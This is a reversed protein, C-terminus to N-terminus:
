RSNVTKSYTSNNFNNTKNLKNIIYELKLFEKSAENNSEFSKKDVITHVGIKFSYQIFNSDLKLEIIMSHKVSNFIGTEIYGKKIWNIIDKYNFFPVKLILKNNESEFPEKLLNIFLIKNKM